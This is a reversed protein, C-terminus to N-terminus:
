HFIHEARRLLIALSGLLPLAFFLLKNMHKTYKEMYASFFSNRTIMARLTQTRTYTHL